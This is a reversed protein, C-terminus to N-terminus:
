EFYDLPGRIAGLLSHSYTCEHFHGILVQVSPLHAYDTYNDINIGRVGPAHWHTCTLLPGLMFLSGLSCSPYNVAAVM